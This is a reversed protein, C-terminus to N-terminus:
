AANKQASLRLSFFFTDSVKPIPKFFFVPIHDGGLKGLVKGERARIIVIMDVGRLEFLFAPGRPSLKKLVNFKGFYYYGVIACEHHVINSSGCIVPNHMIYFIVSEITAFYFRYFCKKAGAYSKGTM